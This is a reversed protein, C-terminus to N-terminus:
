PPASGWCRVDPWSPASKEAVNGLQLIEFSRDVVMDM